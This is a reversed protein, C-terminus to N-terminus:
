RKTDFFEPIFCREITAIDAATVKRAECCSKWSRKVVSSVEEILRNGESVSLGFAAVSSLLNERTAAAGAEGVNLGLLRGRTGTYPPALDFAPSLRFHHTGAVLAHNREHDDTISCLANFAIRRFLERCDREGTVTWRALERALRSYSGTGTWRATAGDALFVTAASVMRHRVIGEPLVARDFREVLLIDQRLVREVRHAPVEISCAAALDLMAAEVRVVNWPDADRNLKALWIQGGQRVTIKPRAGGASTGAGFALAAQQEARSLVKHQDIKHMADLLAPQQLDKWQLIPIEEVPKEPTSGFALAGIRDATRLFLYDFETRYEDGYLRSAM